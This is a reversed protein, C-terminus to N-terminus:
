ELVQAGLQLTGVTLVVDTSVVAPRAAEIAAQSDLWECSAPGGASTFCAGDAAVRLLHQRAFDDAVAAPHPASVGAALLAARLDELGDPVFVAMAGGLVVEQRRALSEHWADDALVAPVEVPVRTGDAAQRVFVYLPVETVNAQPLVTFRDTGLLLYDVLRGSVWGQSRRLPNLAELSLPRAPKPEGGAVALGAVGEVIPCLVTSGPHLSKAARLAESASRLADPATDRPVETVQLRWFPTYFSSDLGVPFINHSGALRAAFVANADYATVQLYVPEVWPNPQAQWIETVVYSAAQM